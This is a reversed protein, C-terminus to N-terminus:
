VTGPHRSRQTSSAPKRLSKDRCRYSLLRDLEACGKKLAAEEEASIPDRVAEAANSRRRHHGENAAFPLTSTTESSDFPLHAFFQAAMRQSLSHGADLTLQYSERIPCLDPPTM